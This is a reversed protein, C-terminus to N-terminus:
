KTLGENSPIGCAAFTGFPHFSQPKEFSDGGSIWEPTSLNLATKVELDFIDGVITLLPLGL